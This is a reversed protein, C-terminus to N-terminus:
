EVDLSFLSVSYPAVSLRDKADSVASESIAIAPTKGPENHAMLDTGTIQWRRGAGTLKAGAIQLPIEQPQAAVNVIGITLAKRDPTWAAM